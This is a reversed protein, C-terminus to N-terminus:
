KVQTTGKMKLLIKNITHHDQIGITLALVVGKIQNLSKYRELRMKLTKAVAVIGQVQWGQNQFRSLSQIMQFLLNARLIKLNVSARIKLFEKKKSFRTLITPRLHQSLVLVEM